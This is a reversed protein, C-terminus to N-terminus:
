RNFSLLWSLGDVVMKQVQQPDDASNSRGNTTTRPVLRQIWRSVVDGPTLQGNVRSELLRHKVILGTDVNLVYETVIQLKIPPLTDASAAELIYGGPLIDKLSGLPKIRLSLTVYSKVNGLATLEVVTSPTQDSVLGGSRLAAQLTNLVLGVSQLYQQQGRALVQDLYGLLEVNEELYEHVPVMSKPVRGIGFGSSSVDVLRLMDSHLSSMIRYIVVAAEDPRYLPKSLQLSNALGPISAAQLTGTPTTDLASPNQLRKVLSMIFSASSEMNKLSGSEVGSVLSSMFWSSNQTSMRKAITEVFPSGTDLVLDKQEVREIRINILQSAFEEVGDALKNIGSVPASVSFVDTGKIYIQRPFSSSPPIAGSRPVNVTSIYDVTIYVFLKQGEETLKYEVLSVNTLNWTGGSLKRFSSVSQYFNSLAEAGRLLITNDVSVLQAKAAFLIPDIVGRKESRTGSLTPLIDELFGMTLQHAVSYLSWQTSGPLPIRHVKMKSSIKQKKHEYQDIPVREATAATANFLSQSNQLIFIPAPFGNTDGIEDQQNVLFEDKVQKWINAAQSLFPVASTAQRTVAQTTQRVFSLSQGLSIPDVDIENVKLSIIEHSSVKFDEKTDLTIISRGKLQNVGRFSATTAMEEREIENKESTKSAGPFSPLV